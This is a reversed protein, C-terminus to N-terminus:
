TTPACENCRHNSPVELGLYKFSEVTELPENNYMIYPKDEKQSKVFMIKTRSSNVSLKSHMYFEELPRMLKICRRFIHAFLVVDNAYLLLMIVVDKIVFEEIGKEDIFKAVM